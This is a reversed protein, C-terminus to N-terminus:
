DYKLLIGDNEEANGHLQSSRNDQEMKVCNRSADCGELRVAIIFKELMKANKLLYNVLPLISKNESLPGYFNIFKITKLHRMSCNFNHTEFRRIQEDEDTYRSLLNQM